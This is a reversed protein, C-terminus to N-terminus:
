SVSPATASFSDGEQRIRKMSRLELLIQDLSKAGFRLAHYNEVLLEGYSMKGKSQIQSYIHYLENATDSKGVANLALKMGPETSDLLGLAFRLDALTIVLENKYSLSNLMAVKLLHISKRDYYSATRPDYISPFRSTWLSGGPIPFRKDLETTRDKYWLDYWQYADGAKGGDFQFEGELTAIISLDHVLDKRLADIKPSGEPFANELIREKSFPIICRAMLGGEVAILGLHEGLWKPTTGAMFNLWPHPITQEGNKKTRRSWDPNGDYIDTLFDTMGAPNTSMLTGLESSYLTLSQHAPNPIEEFIDIIAEHSGSESAFNVKPEIEKLINKSTRLASTKKGLGPPSVLIVYLNSHVPYYVTQMFIKRQAAGAIAGFGCWLHFNKPSDSEATFEQYASIWDPLKRQAM